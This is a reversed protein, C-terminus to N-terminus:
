ASAHRREPQPADRAVGAGTGSGSINGRGSDRVAGAMSGAISGPEMAHARLGGLSPICIERREVTLLGRHALGHLERSFTEASVNLSSAVVTKAAPLTVVGMDPRAEETVAERLLYAVLRQAASQLCCAELDLTLRQNRAAVLHLMAFAVAPWRGIAERLRELKVFLLRCSTLAQAYLPCPCGLLAASEAFSHGPLVIDLVREAGDASLVALKVRGELLVYFGSLTEGKEYLMLDRTATRLHCGGAIHSMAQAPLSEFGLAKTLLSVCSHERDEANM